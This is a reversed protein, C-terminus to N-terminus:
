EVETLEFYGIRYGEPLEVLVCWFDFWADLGSAEDAVFQISTWSRYNLSNVEDPVPRNGTDRLAALSLRSFDLRYDIPTLPGPSGTTQAVEGIMSKITEQLAEPTVQAQVWPAFWAHAQAYNEALIAAAFEGAVQRCAEKSM